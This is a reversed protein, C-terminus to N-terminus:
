MRAQKFFINHQITTAAAAGEEEVQVSATSISTKILDEVTTIGYASPAGTGKLASEIFRGSLEDVYKVPMYQQHFIINRTVNPTDVGVINGIDKLIVLGFPMDEWFFRANFNLKVNVDAPKTNKLDQGAVPLMPFPVRSYGINTNFIRKLNSDDSIQGKYMTKIREEIPMVQQLDLQPYIKLIAHKIAQIENDLGAIENASRDDLGEYLLPVDKFKM